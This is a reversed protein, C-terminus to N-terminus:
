RSSIPAVGCASLQIVNLKLLLEEAIAFSAFLDYNADSAHSCVQALLLEGNDM